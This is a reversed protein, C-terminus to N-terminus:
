NNPPLSLLYNKIHNYLPRKVKMNLVEKVKIKDINYM